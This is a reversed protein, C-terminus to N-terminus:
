LRDGVMTFSRRSSNVRSWWDLFRPSGNVRAQQSDWPVLRPSGGAWSDREYGGTAGAGSAGSVFSQAPARATRRASKDSAPVGCPREPFGGGGRPNGPAPALPSRSVWPFYLAPESGLHALCARKRREKRKQRLPQRKGGEKGSLARAAPTSTPAVWTAAKGPVGATQTSAELVLGVLTRGAAPRQRQTRQEDRSRRQGGLCPASRSGLLVLTQAKKQPWLPCAPCHM